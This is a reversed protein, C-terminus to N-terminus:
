AKPAIVYEFESSWFANCVSHWCAVNGFIFNAIPCTLPMLGYHLMVQCWSPRELLDQSLNAMQRRWVLAEGIFFVLWQLLSGLLIMAGLFLVADFAQSDDRLTRWAGPILMLLVAASPTLAESMEAAYTKLLVCLIRDVSFPAHKLIVVLWAITTVGWLHRKAQVYRDHFDTVTDNAILSWVRCVSQAGNSCIMAKYMVHVDEPIVEPDWFDLEVAYGMLISYNSFNVYPETFDALFDSSNMCCEVASILPNWLKGFNRYTNRPASYILRRGDIQGFYASELANFFDPAFVSDADCVTVMVDWLDMGAAMMDAWLTRLAYNENSAKCPRECPMVTHVTMHFSAFAKGFLKDLEHFTSAHTIDKAEMALVIHVDHGDSKKPLSELTRKLVDHPEKYAPIVVMHRFKLQRSEQRALIHCRFFLVALRRLPTICVSLLFLLRLAPGSATYGSVWIKACLGGLNLGFGAALLAAYTLPILVLYRYYPYSQRISPIAAGPAVVAKSFLNRDGECDTSKISQVDNEVDSSASTTSLDSASGAQKTKDLWAADEKLL